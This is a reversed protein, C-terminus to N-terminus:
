CAQLMAMFARAFSVEMPVGLPRHLPYMAMAARDFWGTSRLCEIGEKMRIIGVANFRCLDACRCVCVSAAVGSRYPHHEVTFM